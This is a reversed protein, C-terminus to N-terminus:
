DDLRLSNPNCVGQVKVLFQAGNLILLFFSGFSLGTMVFIPVLNTYRWVRRPILPEARTFVKALFVEEWLVFLGITLTGICIPAIVEAQKWSELAETVGFV